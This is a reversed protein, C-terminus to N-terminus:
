RPNQPLGDSIDYYDGKQSVYIHLALGTKTPTDFAGMSISTWDKELPEWFLSSGCVSCFGRRIKDSSRYWSLNDAGHITLAERSVVTGAEHHGTWKRCQVCHCASPKALAGAVEFRVANCLCSGTHM